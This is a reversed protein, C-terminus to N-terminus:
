DGRRESKLQFTDTRSKGPYMFQLTLTIPYRPPPLITVDVVAGEDTLKVFLTPTPLPGDFAGKVGVGFYAKGALFQIGKEDLQVPYMSRGTMSDSSDGATILTISLGNTILAGLRAMEAGFWTSSCSESLVRYLKNSVDKSLLAARVVDEPYRALDLAVVDSAWSAALAIKALQEKAVDRGVV